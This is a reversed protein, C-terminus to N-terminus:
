NQPWGERVVDQKGELRDAAERLAKVVDARDCNAIYQAVEPDNFILLVFLPKEVGLEDAVRVVQRAAQRMLSGLEPETMDELRQTM